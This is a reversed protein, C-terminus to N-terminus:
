EKFSKELKEYFRKIADVERGPSYDDSDVWEIDHLVRACDFLHRGFEIRSKDKDAMLADSIRELHKYAYNWSGGSM